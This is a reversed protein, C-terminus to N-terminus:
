QPDIAGAVPAPWRWAEGYAPAPPWDQAQRPPEAGQLRWWRACQMWGAHGVVTCGAVPPQWAAVRAFLARLSEGGGPAHDAFDACWRDVAEPGITAWPQGDWQGFDMELLAVDRVHRWGLRRLERGVDAVRRLPSTCVVRPRGERRASRDLRRALRRAKRPDLALDTRGICRGAAGQPRPHRCLLVDWVQPGSM